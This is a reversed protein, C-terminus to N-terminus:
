AGGVTLLSINTCLFLSNNTLDVLTPDYRIMDYFFMSSGSLAARALAAQDPDTRNASANLPMEILYLNLRLLMHCLIQSFIPVVM